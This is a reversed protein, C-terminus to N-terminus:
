NSLLTARDTVRVLILPPIKSTLNSPRTPCALVNPEPSDTLLWLVWGNRFWRSVWVILGRNVKNTIPLSIGDLDSASHIGSWFELLTKGNWFSFLSALLSSPFLRRQPLRSSGRGSTRTDPQKGHKGRRHLRNQQQEVHREFLIAGITIKLLIKM